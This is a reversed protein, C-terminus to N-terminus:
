TMSRREIRTSSKGSRSAILRVRLAERVHGRGSVNIAAVTGSRLTRGPRRLQTNTFPQTAHISPPFHATPSPVSPYLSPLCHRRLGSASVGRKGRTPSRRHSCVCVCVCACVCVCVCVCVGRQKTYRERARPEHTRCLPLPSSSFFLLSAPLQKQRPDDTRGRSLRGERRSKDWKAVDDRTM